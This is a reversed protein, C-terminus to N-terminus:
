LPTTPSKLFLSVINDLLFLFKLNHINVLMVIITSNFGPSSSTTILGPTTGQGEVNCIGLSLWEVVSDGIVGVEPYCTFQRFKKLWMELFLQFLSQKRVRPIHRPLKIAEYVHM